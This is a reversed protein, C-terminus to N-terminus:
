HKSSSALISRNPNSYPTRGHGAILNNVILFDRAQWPVSVREAVSRERLWAALFDEPIPSRDGFYAALSQEAETRPPPVNQPRAIHELFTRHFINLSPYLIEVGSEPDRLVAPRRQLTRLWDDDVWEFDTDAKKLKAEAEERTSAEWCVQWSKYNFQNFNRVFLVGLDRFRGLVEPFSARIERGLRRLDNVPTLGDGESPVECYFGLYWPPHAHYSMEQHQVIDIVPHAQTSTGAHSRRARPLAAHRGLMEYREPVLVDLIM